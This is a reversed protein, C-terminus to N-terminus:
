DPFLDKPIYASVVWNPENVIENIKLDAAVSCLIYAEERSLGRHKHLHSIMGRVAEKAAEMLDSAVGMTAYMPEDTGSATFPGLTEFQPATIDMDSRLTFRTTIETPTEIGSICVEGDGQAAHGDGISFLADDVAVPLYLTSGTILHKVDVNGGVFRPPVTSRPSSTAPAVGLIGPFPEIPVTIGAEFEAEEQNLNWHYIFPDPFETHLLGVEAEESRIVSYGWDDTTVDLIDIQLVDGPEAGDVAVPGTLRHGTFEMTLLDDATTSPTVESGNADLCEFRVVDGSEIHLNPDLDKDWSTHLAEKHSLQYVASM